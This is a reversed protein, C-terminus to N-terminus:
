KSVSGNKDEIIQRCLQITFSENKYVEHLQNKIISSEINLKDFWSQEPKFEDNEAFILHISCKPKHIEDRLRTSSIAYFKNVKLNNLAAKWAITGGISFALVTTEETELESLTIVAKNIGGNILKSHLKDKSLYSRDIGALKCSDYCTIQFESELLEAYRQIWPSIGFLDSIIVLKSNMSTVSLLSRVDNVVIRLSSEDSVKNFSPKLSSVM